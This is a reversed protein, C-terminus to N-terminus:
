VRFGGGSVVERVRAAIHLTSVIHARRDEALAAANTSVVDVGKTL